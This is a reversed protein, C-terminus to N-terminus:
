LPSRYPSFFTLVAAISSSHYVGAGSAVTELPLSLIDIIGLKKPLQLFVMKYGNESSTQSGNLSKGSEDGDLMDFSVNKRSLMLRRIAGEIEGIKWVVETGMKWEYSLYRANLFQDVSLPQCLVSNWGCHSLFGGVSNHELVEKQLAWKVIVGREKTEAVLGEPFFEIRKFGHVLGPQVVWLFPLNSNVLGCAMQTLFLKDPMAM